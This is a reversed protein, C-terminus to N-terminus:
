MRVCICKFLFMDHKIIYSVEQNPKENNFRLPSYFPISHFAICNMGVYLKVLIPGHQGSGKCGYVHRMM